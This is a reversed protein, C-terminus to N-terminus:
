LWARHGSGVHREAGSGGGSGGVGGRSVNAHKSLTM